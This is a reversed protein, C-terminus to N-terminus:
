DPNCIYRGENVMYGNRCLTTDGQIEDRFAAHQPASIVRSSPTPATVDASCAAILAALAAVTGLQLARRSILRSM